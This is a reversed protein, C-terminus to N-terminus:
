KKIEFEVAAGKEMEKVKGIKTKLGVDELMIRFDEFYDYFGCTHCFSGTFEVRFSKRDSFVFRATSEPSRYKNYEDVAEAIEGKM